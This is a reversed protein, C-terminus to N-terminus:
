KSAAEERRADSFILLRGDEGEYVIPLVRVRASVKGACAAWPAPESEALSPEPLTGGFFLTAFSIGRLRGPDPIGALAAMPHNAFVIEGKEGLVAVPVGVGEALLRFSERVMHMWRDDLCSVVLREPEEGEGSVRVARIRLHVAGDRGTVAHGYGTGTQMADGIIARVADHDGIFDGFAMGVAATGAEGFIATTSGSTSLIEGQPTLVFIACPLSEILAHLLRLEGQGRRLESVDRFIGRTSLPNGNDCRCNVSGELYVRRGDRTLYTTRFRSHEACNMLGAFLHMYEDLSEPAVVDFITMSNIEEETYGLTERWARNVHIITGDPRVSEILDNAHEVLDFFRIESQALKQEMQRKQVAIRLQNTIDTFIERVAIGKRQYGTAGANLAEIVVEEESKGTLIFFPIDDYRARVERLFEVGNMGPMHYDSVIADYESVALKELAGKGSTATDVQIDGDKELFLRGAKLVDEEEDVM